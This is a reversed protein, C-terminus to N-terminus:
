RAVIPTASDRDSRMAQAKRAALAATIRADRGYVDRRFQPTGDADAFASIYLLFVPVPQRLWVTVTDGREAAEPAKFDAPLLRQALSGVQDVRICGHSLFRQARAFLNRGPTDHLYVDFRNPLELKIAGLANLPGPRQQLVYPFREPHVKRWDVDLGFPDDLSGNRIVMNQERLYGPNRRLKPLIEKRAISHPVNWPPNFTVGVVSAQLVPTPHRTEGVITRLRLPPDNGDVLELTADPVNVAIHREPFQRPLWRWREMNAVIQAIRQEVSVNLAALTDKGARGDTALGHNLQFRKLGAALDATPEGALDGTVVLRQRVVALRPDGPDATGGATDVTPWGGLAALARYRALMPLLRAYGPHPPALAAFAAALDPRDLIAAVALATDFVPPAIGWDAEIAQPRLRGLALDGALRLAAQSLLLDRQAEATLEAPLPLVAAFREADYDAPELGHLASATAAAAFREAMAPDAWALRNERLAYFRRLTVAEARTAAWDSLLLDALGLASAPWAMALLAVAVASALAHRRASLMSMIRSPYRNRM